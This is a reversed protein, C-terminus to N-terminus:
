TIEDLSMTKFVMKSSVVSLNICRAGVEERLELSIYKRTDGSLYKIPMRFEVYGFGYEENMRM